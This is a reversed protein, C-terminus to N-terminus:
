QVTSNAAARRTLSSLWIGGSRILVYPEKSGPRTSNEFEWGFLGAYFRRAAGIDDTILDHWVFKGTLPDKSLQQDGSVPGGATSCAVLFITMIMLSLVPKFPKYMAATNRQDRVKSTAM